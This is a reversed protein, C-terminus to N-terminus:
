RKTDWSTLDFQEIILIINDIYTPSTAYPAGDTTHILKDVADKYDANNVVGAYRPQKQLLTM